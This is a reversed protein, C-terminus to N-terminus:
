VVLPRFDQSGADNTFQEISKIVIVVGKTPAPSPSGGQPLGDFMMNQVAFVMKAKLGYALTTSLLECFEKNTITEGTKKTNRRGRRTASKSPKTLAETSLGETPPVGIAENESHGTSTEM